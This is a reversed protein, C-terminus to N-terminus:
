RSQSRYSALEKRLSDVEAQLEDREATREAIDAKPSRAPERGKSGAYRGNAFNSLRLKMAQTAQYVAEQERVLGEQYATLGTLEEKLSETEAALKKSDGCGTLLLPSAVGLLVGGALWGSQLHLRWPTLM